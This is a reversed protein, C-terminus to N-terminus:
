RNLIYVGINLYLACLLWIIYPIQLYAATKNIKFYKIVTIIVTILLAVLVFIAGLFQRASFFVPSWILNLFLSIAFFLYASSKNEYTKENNWILYLSIGMLIYLVTWVIPFVIGPPSLPPRKITGYVDMDKGTILASFGGALLPILLSIVLRKLNCKLIM